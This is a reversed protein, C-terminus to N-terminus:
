HLLHPHLRSMMSELYAMFLTNHINNAAILEIIATNTYVNSIIPIDFITCNDITRKAHKYIEIIEGNNMMLNQMREVSQPFCSYAVKLVGDAASVAGVNFPLREAIDAFAKNM